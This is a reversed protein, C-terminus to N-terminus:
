FAWEALLEEWSFDSDKKVMLASKPSNDLPFKWIYLCISVLSKTIINLTHGDDVGPKGLRLSILIYIPLRTTKKHLHSDFGCVQIYYAPMTSIVQMTLSLELKDM